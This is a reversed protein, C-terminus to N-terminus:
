VQHQNAVASSLMDWFVDSKNDADDKECTVPRAGDILSGRESSKSNRRKSLSCGFPNSRKRSVSTGTTKGTQVGLINEKSTHANSRVPKKRKRMVMVDSPRKWQPSQDSM